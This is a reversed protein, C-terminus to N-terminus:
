ATPGSAALRPKVQRWLRVVPPPAHEFLYVKTLTLRLVFYSYVFARVPHVPVLADAGAARASGAMHWSFRLMRCRGMSRYFGQHVRLRRPKPMRRISEYFLAGPARVVHGRLRIYFLLIHDPGYDFTMWPFERLYRTRYVGYFESCDSLIVQRVLDAYDTPPRATAPSVTGAEPDIDPHFRVVDTVGLVADPQNSMAAVVTEVYRPARVDDDAAWFFYEGTAQQLVFHFNEWAPLATQQRFYRVRRDREAARRAIEATEDTSANDSVIIELNEYTQALLSDLARALTSAGNHVPM